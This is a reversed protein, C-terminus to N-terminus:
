NLPVRQSCVAISSVCFLAYLPVCKWGLVLKTDDGGSGFEVFVFGTVTRSFNLSLDGGHVLICVLM